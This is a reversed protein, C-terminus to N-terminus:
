SQPTPWAGPGPEKGTPRNGRRWGFANAEILCFVATALTLVLWLYTVLLIRNARAVAEKHWIQDSPLNRELEAASSDGPNRGVYDKALDTLDAAPAQVHRAVPKEPPYWYTYRDLEAAYLFAAPIAMALCCVGAIVWLKFKSKRTTRRGVASVILLVILLLFSVIGVAYSAGTQDPPAIRTLFGGFASSVFTVVEVAWILLGKYDTM